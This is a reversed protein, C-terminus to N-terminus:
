LNEQKLVKEYNSDTLKNILSNINKILQTDETTEKKYRKNKNINMRYYKKNIDISDLFIQLIIM